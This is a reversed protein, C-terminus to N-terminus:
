RDRDRGLLLRILLGLLVLALAGGYRDIWGPGPPPPLTGALEYLWEGVVTPNETSRREWLSDRMLDADAVVRAQGTGLRCLATLEGEDVRCQSGSSRLRGPSDLLIRRENWRAEVEGARAPPRLSLGWHGLLPALLGVPPPRRIDGPPLESPWTLMPDTLILARGGNGVWGDLAVLEAPALRRPQALFLLRGRALTAEDLVDVPRFDFEEGLEVYAAAPRSEPDLPGKEGWALPLGSMLM